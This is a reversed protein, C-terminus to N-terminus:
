LVRLTQRNPKPDSNNATRVKHGALAYYFIFIYCPLLIWYAQRPSYIDALRGYLLPILAGGALGMILLSSAAKTFRGLDALALPWLAPWMLSNALGLLAIFFVSAFGTTFLAALSFTAGLIACYQLAKDQSLYKPIFIIGIFYGVIMFILTYTTFFKAVSLNMGQYKGYQIITDGAIVETGIYLFLTLVGLLLHPFQFVSTKNSNKIALDEDEKETDIEPLGSFFLLVVLLVLIIVIIIYPFIVRSALADLHVAKETISMTKLNNTLSDANKLTVAGLIIPALAGAFKNCVGMISIRKAASKLPGLITVYPNSATQLLALGSGLVFLGFLFFSYKRTMAAPIFIAAGVAMIFLGISMGNKFGTIKLLWGSPLAMVFYAIYFAFAVLYSEFNNLECAIRLYPILVSNLWTIFGFIFFLAGIIIIPNIGPKGTIAIQDTEKKVIIM